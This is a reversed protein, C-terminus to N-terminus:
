RKSKQIKKKTSMFNNDRSLLDSETELSRKRKMLDLRDEISETSLLLAIVNVSETSLQFGVKVNNPIEGLVWQILQELNPDPSLKDERCYCCEYRAPGIIAVDHVMAMRLDKILKYEEYPTDAYQEIM